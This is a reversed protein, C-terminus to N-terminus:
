SEERTLTLYWGRIRLEVTLLEPTGELALPDAASVSVAEVVLTAEGRALAALCAALGRFDTELTVTASLRRLRGAATSDAVPAVRLVRAHHRMAITTLQGSLDSLAAPEVPGALLRPALAVVARTLSRASDELAPLAAIAAETEQVLREALVARAHSEILQRTLAPLLRLLVVAALVIGLGLGLARRDRPSM